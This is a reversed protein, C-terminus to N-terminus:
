SSSGKTAEPRETASPAEGDRDPGQKLHAIVTWRYAPDDIAREFDIKDDM